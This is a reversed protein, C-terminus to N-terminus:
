KATSASKAILHAINSDAEFDDKREEATLQIQMRTKRQHKRVRLAQFLSDRADQPIENQDLHIAMLSRSTGLAESLDALRSGLSLGSLDLHVLRQNDHLFLRLADIMRSAEDMARSFENLNFGM